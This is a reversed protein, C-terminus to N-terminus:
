FAEHPMGLRLALLPLALPQVQPVPPSQAQQEQLPEQQKLSPEPLVQRGEDQLLLEKLEWELPAPMELLELLEPQVQQRQQLGPHVLGQLWLQVQPGLRQLELFEEGPYCGTRPRV